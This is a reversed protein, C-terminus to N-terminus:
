DSAMGSGLKFATFIALGFFLLDIPSFSEKFAEMAIEDSFDGIAADFEQQQDQIMKQQEDPTFKAWRTEAEQWVKPPYDAEETAEEVSMGNPWNMQRGEAQWEAVVEDALGVKLDTATFSVAIDPMEQQLLLQIAAYKGVLLALVAAVVAVGGPLVGEASDGCAIRVGLGVLFGVGWAIWGIEMGTGYTIGAWIAAGIAGGVLGGILSRVLGNM